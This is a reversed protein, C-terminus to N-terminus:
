FRKHTTIGGSIKAKGSELNSVKDKAKGISEPEFEGEAREARDKMLKEHRDKDVRWVDAGPIGACSVGAVRDFGMRRFMRKTKERVFNSADPPICGYHYGSKTGSGQLVRGSKDAVYKMNSVNPIESIASLNAKETIEIGDEDIMPAPAPPPDPEAAVPAAEVISSDVVPEVKVPEAKKAKTKKPAKAKRPAKDKSM